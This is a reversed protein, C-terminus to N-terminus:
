IKVCSGVQADGDISCNESYEVRDIVCGSRIVVKAGRVTEARVGTLDVQDGEISGCSLVGYGPKIIESLFGAATSRTITVQAGGISGVTSHARDLRINVREANIIGGVTFSGSASFSDAECDGGAKLSGSVRMEGASISGGVKLSGPVNLLGSKLNGDIRTSGSGTFDGAAVNGDCQFAGSTRIEGACDVNGFARFSGSSHLERCALDSSVKCVGSCNIRNYCGGDLVGSGSVRYDGIGGPKQRSSRSENWASEVGKAAETAANGVTKAAKTVASQVDQGLTEFDVSELTDAVKKLGKQLMQNLSGMLNEWQDGCAADEGDDERQEMEELLETMNEQIEELSDGTTDIVEEIEEIRGDLAELKEQLEELRQELQQIRGENGATQAERLQTRFYRRQEKLDFRQRLLNNREERAQALKENMEDMQRNLSDMEQHFKDMNM